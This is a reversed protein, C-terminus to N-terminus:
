EAPSARRLWLPLLARDAPCLEYGGLEAPAVWALARHERPRPYGSVIRCALCHLRIAPPGPHAVTALVRGARAGLALEEALERELCAALDEGPERKGGPLEWLGSDRRRALLLRGGECLRACTVELASPVM